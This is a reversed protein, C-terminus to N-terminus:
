SLSAVPAATAANRRRWDAVAVHGAALLQLSTPEAAFETHANEPGGPRLETSPPFVTGEGAGALIPTNPQTEYAWGLLTATFNSVNRFGIWGYHVKGSILFRLGLFRFQTHAFPGHSASFLASGSLMVGSRAFPAAPGVKEGVALAKAFDHGEFNRGTGTEVVNGGYGSAYLSVVTCFGIASACRYALKFSVTGENDLDIDIQHPDGFYSVLQNSPTFVVQARASSASALTAGAALVYLLMRRELVEDLLSPHRRETQKRDRNEANM